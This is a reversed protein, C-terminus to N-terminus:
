FYLAYLTLMHVLRGIGVRILVCFGVPHGDSQEAGCKKQGQDRHGIVPDRVTIVPNFNASEKEKEPGAARGDGRSIM